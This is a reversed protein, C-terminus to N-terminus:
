FRQKVVHCDQEPNLDPDGEEYHWGSRVPTGNGLAAPWWMYAETLRNITLHDDKHWQGFANPDLPVFRYGDDYTEVKYKFTAVEATDGDISVNFREHEFCTEGERWVHGDVRREDHLRQSDTLGPM